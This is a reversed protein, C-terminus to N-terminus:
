AELKIKHAANVEDAHLAAIYDPLAGTALAEDFAMRTQASYSANSGAYLAASPPTKQSYGLADRAARTSGYMAVAKANVMGQDWRDEPPMWNPKGHDLVSIILRWVDPTARFWENQICLPSLCLHLFMEGVRGGEMEAILDVGYPFIGSLGSRRLKPFDSQGVKIPGGNTAQLFYITM